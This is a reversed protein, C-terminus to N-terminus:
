IEIGLMMNYHAIHGNKEFVMKFTNLWVDNKYSGEMYPDDDMITHSGSHAWSILSEYIIHEEYSMNKGLDAINQTGLTTFYSELIRRLVNPLWPMNVGPNQIAAGAQSWLEQYSTKIPSSTGSCELKEISNPSPSLKIIKYFTSSSYNNYTVQHLFKTNHTLLILQRVRKSNKDKIDKVLGRILSSVAYLIGSDLSSIPDDIVALVDNNEGDEPVGELSYLFYLFTIFTREGESLDNIDAIKGNGRKLYYGGDGDVTKTMELRFSHFQMMKLLSNIREVAYESTQASKYLNKISKDYDANKKELVSKGKLKKEKDSEIRNKRDIYDDIYIKLIDTYFISWAEEELESLREKKNNRDKIVSALKENAKIVIENLNELYNDFNSIDISIDIPKEPYKIKEDFISNINNCSNIIELFLNNVGEMNDTLEAISKEYQLKYNQIHKIFKELVYKEHKLNDISEIYDKSVANYIQSLLSEEIDQSCFLCKVAGQRSPHDQKNKLIEIGKIIWSLESYKAHFEGIKTNTPNVLSCNVITKIDDLNGEYKIDPSKDWYEPLSDGQLSRIDYDIDDLSRNEGENRDSNASDNKYEELQNRVTLIKDLTKGKNSKINKMNDLVDQPLVERKKWIVNMCKNKEEKLKDDCEEINKENNSINKNLSNIKDQLENIKDTIEQVNEGLLFISKESGSKSFASRVYDRNYVKITYPNNNDWKMTPSITGKRSMLNSLTTKGSGNPGYIYNVKNLSKIELNNSFCTSDQITIKTLM